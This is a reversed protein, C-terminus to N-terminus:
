PINNKQLNKNKPIGYIYVTCEEPTIGAQVTVREGPYVVNVVPARESFQAVM